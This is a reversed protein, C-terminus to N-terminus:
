PWWSVGVTLQASKAFIGLFTHSHQKSGGASINGIEVDKFSGKSSKFNVDLAWAESLYIALGGGLSLGAGGFDSTTREGNKFVDSVPWFTLALDGYPVWRRRNSALHLRMGLDVRGFTVKDFADFEQVFVDAEYADLYPTLISNLGYGVRAGVLWTRDTPKNEFSVATGGVDFGLVWGQTTSQRASADVSAGARPQAAAPPSAIATTLVLAHAVLLRARRRRVLRIQATQTRVGNVLLARSVNSM